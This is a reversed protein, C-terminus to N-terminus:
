PPQQISVVRALVAAVVLDVHRRGAGLVPLGGTSFFGLLWDKRESQDQRRSEEVAAVVLVVAAVVLGLAVVVFGMGV